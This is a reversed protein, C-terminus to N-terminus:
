LVLLFQCGHNVQAAGARAVVVRSATKLQNVALPTPIVIDAPIERADVLHLTYEVV